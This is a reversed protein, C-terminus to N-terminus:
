DSMWHLFFAIIPSSVVVILRNRRAHQKYVPVDTPENTCLHFVDKNLDIRRDTLVHQEEIFFVCTRESPYM